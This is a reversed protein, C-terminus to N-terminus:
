VVSKRDGIQIGDSYDNAFNVGVQLALALVAALGARVPSAEGAHLAVATGAMVPALAAPLTKPRAGEIWDSVAM